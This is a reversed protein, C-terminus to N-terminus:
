VELYVFFMISISLKFNMIELFAVFISLIKVTLTLDFTFIKDFKTAKNSFMFKLLFNKYIVKEVRYVFEHSHLM